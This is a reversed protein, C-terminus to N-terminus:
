LPLRMIVDEDAHSGVMFHYNGVAAFGHRAYFRRARHNDVFVSLYLEAARRRRAEAIVWDILMQAIGTGHWPKLVYFQRLEAAAAPPPPDVPLSVSAVKAYGALVGDAEALRFAFDPDALEAQWAPPTFDAFFAALDKPDYLPGFTDAFSQRFLADIAPADAVTADRYAIM